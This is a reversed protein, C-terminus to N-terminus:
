TKPPKSAGSIELEIQGIVLTPSIDFYGCFAVFEDLTWVAHAIFLKDVRGNSISFDKKIRYMTIKREIRIANFIQACVISTQDIKLAKRGVYSSHCSFGFYDMFLSVGIAPAQMTALYRSSETCSSM